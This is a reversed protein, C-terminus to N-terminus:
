DITYGMHQLQRVVNARELPVDSPRTARLHRVEAESYPPTGPPLSDGAWQGLMWNMLEAVQRDNLPTNMVGPVQVILARGQPLRLFHGLVGQMSPIGRQPMGSGDDLHCGMCHLRYNLAPSGASAPQAAQAPAAALLAMAGLLLASGVLRCCAAARSVARPLPKGMTLPDPHWRQM